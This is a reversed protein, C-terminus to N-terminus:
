AANRIFSPTPLQPDASRQLQADLLARMAAVNALGLRRTRDDLRLKVPVHSADLLTLQLPQTLLTDHM